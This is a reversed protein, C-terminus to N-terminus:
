KVGNKYVDLLKGCHESMDPFNTIKKVEIKENNLQEALCIYNTFIDEKELIEKAGVSDSVFVKVGFSVGELVILGFTEKWKSPVILIDIESYVARSKM